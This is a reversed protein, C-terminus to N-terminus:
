FYDPRFMYAPGWAGEGALLRGIRAAEGPAPRVHFTEYWSQRLSLGSLAPFSPQLHLVMRLCGERSAREFESALLGRLRTEAGPLCAAELVTFIDGDNRSRVYAEVEGVTVVFDRMDPEDSHLDEVFRSHELHYRWYDLDRAVSLPCGRAAEDYIRAVAPLDASTFPRGPEADAGTAGLDPVLGGSRHGAARPAAAASVTQEAGPLPGRQFPFPVVEYGRARYYAPGIESFLATGVFGRDEAWWQVWELLAAAYGLRRHRTPTVLSDLAVVPRAALSHEDVPWLLPLDLAFISSVMESGKRAVLCQTRGQVWGTRWRLALFGELTEFARREALAAEAPTAPGFEFPRYM